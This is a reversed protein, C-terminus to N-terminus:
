GDDRGGRLRKVASHLHKSSLGPRTRKRRKPTKAARQLLAVLRERAAKRNDVQSRLARSVIVLVGAKTVRRGALNLLREKVDSPLSSQDIDVRLEVATPENNVNQGRAGAARVFREHVERDELAIIDTVKIMEHDKAGIVEVWDRSTSTRRWCTSKEKLNGSEAANADIAVAM